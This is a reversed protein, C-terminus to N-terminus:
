WGYIDLEWISVGWGTPSKNIFVRLYRFSSCKQQNNLIITHVVHLPTKKKVGPSQGYEEVSRMSEQEGDNGDFLICWNNSDDSDDESIEVRYNNSYAAEWDVVVKTLHRSTSKGFDLIIWHQGPISSGHMNSAAQWRDKIWRVGPPDQIIVSAPGLNGRVDSTVKIFPDRSLIKEAPRSISIPSLKHLRELEPSILQSRLLPPSRGSSKLFAVTVGIWIVCLLLLCISLLLFLNSGKKARSRPQM